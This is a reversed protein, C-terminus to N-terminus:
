IQRTVTAWYLTATDWELVAEFQMKCCMAIQCYTPGPLQLFTCFKARFLCIQQRIWQVFGLHEPMNNRTLRSRPRVGALTKQVAKFHLQLLLFTWREM